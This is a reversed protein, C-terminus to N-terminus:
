TSFRWRVDRDGKFGPGGYEDGDGDGDYVVGEAGATLAEREGNIRRLLWWLAAVVGVNAALYGLAFAHGLVYRPADNARYLQTGLVAGLNGVSIQM